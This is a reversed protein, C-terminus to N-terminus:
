PAVAHPHVFLKQFEPPELTENERRNPTISNLTPAVVTFFLFGKSMTITIMMTTLAMPNSTVDRLFLGTSWGILIPTTSGSVPGAESM